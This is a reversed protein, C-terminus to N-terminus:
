LVQTTVLPSNSETAVKCDLIVEQAPRPAVAYASLDALVAQVSGAELPFLDRADQLQLGLVSKFCERTLVMVLKLPSM